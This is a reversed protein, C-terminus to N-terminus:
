QYGGRFGAVLTGFQASARDYARPPTVLTLDYVCGDKKMVYLDYIVPVGDVRVSVVQHLADRGDLTVTEGMLVRRDTTGILLDNMLIQLPPDGHGSCAANVAMVANEDPQLWALDGGPSDM